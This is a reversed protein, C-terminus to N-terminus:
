LNTALMSRVGVRWELSYCTVSTNCAFWETGSLVIWIVKIGCRDGPGIERDGRVHNSRHKILHHGEVVFITNDGYAEGVRSFDRM